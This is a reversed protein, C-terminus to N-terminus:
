FKAKLWAEVTELWEEPKERLIWHGADLVKGTYDECLPKTLLDGLAAQAPADHSGGIFLVPIALKFVDDALNQEHNWHTHETWARYWGLKGNFGDEKWKRIITSKTEPTIYGAEEVRRDNSLWEGLKGPPCFDTKWIDADKAFLLSHLSEIRDELLKPAEPSTMFEWYGLPEFGLVAKMQVHAEALDLKAARRYAVSTFIAGIVRAPQWNIFRGALYSGWDHGIVIVKDVNEADLIDAVDQSLGESNYAEAETPKSTAGYGLLDPAIANYGSAEFAKVQEAWMDSYEPFGHLLLITQKPVTSETKPTAYYSYTYSRTTTVTKYTSPDM